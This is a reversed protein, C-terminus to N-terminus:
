TLGIGGCRQDPLGGLLVGVQTLRGMAKIQRGQGDLISKIERRIITDGALEQPGDVGVARKAM